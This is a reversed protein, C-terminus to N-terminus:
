MTWSTYTLVDQNGHGLAWVLSSLQKDSWAGLDPGKEGKAERESGGSRESRESRKLRKSRKSRKKAVAEGSELSLCAKETSCGKDTKDENNSVCLDCLLM